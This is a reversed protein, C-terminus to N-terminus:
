NEATARLCNCGAGWFFHFNGKIKENWRIRMNRDSRMMCVRKMGFNEVRNEEKEKESKGSKAQTTENETYVSWKFIEIHTQM